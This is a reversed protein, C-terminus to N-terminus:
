LMMEWFCVEPLPTGNYKPCRQFGLREYLKNAGKLRELTDLVMRKYGIVRGAEVVTQALLRGAGHGQWEPLVNLRKMECTRTTWDSEASAPGHIHHPTFPRLAVAGIDQRCGDAAAVSVLLIVGDPPAFDGPLSDVEQQFSQFSLDLGLHTLSNFYQQSLSAFAAVDASTTATRVALSERTLHLTAAVPAEASSTSATM